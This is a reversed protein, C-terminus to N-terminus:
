PIGLRSTAWPLLRRSVIYAISLALALLSGVFALMGPARRDRLFPLAGLLGFVAPLWILVSLPAM